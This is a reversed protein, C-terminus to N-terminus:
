RIGFFLEAVEYKKICYNGEKIVMDLYWYSKNIVNRYMIRVSLIM